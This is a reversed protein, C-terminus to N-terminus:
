SFLSNMPWNILIFLGPFILPFPVGSRLLNKKEEEGTDKNYQKM